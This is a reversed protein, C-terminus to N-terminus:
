CIRPVLEGTLMGLIRQGGYPTNLIVPYKQKEAVRGISCAEKGWHFTQIMGVVQSEIEPPVICLFTGECALYFPDFGMFECLAMVSEDIPVLTEDIEFTVNSQSAVENLAQGVGGRTADRLCHINGVVEMLQTICRNLLRCDSKIQSKMGSSRSATIAAGHLGMPGSLIIADGPKAGNGSIHTGNPIKGLATTNIYIQDVNGKPVVKTDGTVIDVPAEQATRRMSQCVAKLNALAFGEELIFGVSLYLPSAGVMALDNVSGCVALKGIDGGPFFIPDVVFSDTTMALRTADVDFATADDPEFPTRLLNESILDLLKQTEQGGNGHVLRITGDNM